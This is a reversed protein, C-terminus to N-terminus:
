RNLLKQLRNLPHQGSHELSPAQILEGLARGQSDQFDWVWGPPRRGSQLGIGVICCVEGLAEPYTQLLRLPTEWNKGLNARLLKSWDEM